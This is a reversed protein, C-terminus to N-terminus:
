IGRMGRTIYLLGGLTGLGNFIGGGIVFVWMLVDM